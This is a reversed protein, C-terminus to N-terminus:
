QAPDIRHRSCVVHCAAPHPPHRDEPAPGPLPIKVTRPGLSSCITVRMGTEPRPLPGTMAPLFGLVAVLRSIM